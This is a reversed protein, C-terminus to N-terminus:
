RFLYKYDNKFIILHKGAISRGNHNTSTIISMASEDQLLTGHVVLTNIVDLKECTILKNNVHSYNPPYKYM